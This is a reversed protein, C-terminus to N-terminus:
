FGASVRDWANLSYGALALACTTPDPLSQALLFNSASLFDVLYELSLKIGDSGCGRDLDQMM